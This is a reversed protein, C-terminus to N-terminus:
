TQKRWRQVRVDDNRSVSTLANINNVYKIIEFQSYFLNILFSTALPPPPPPPQDDTSCFFGNIM